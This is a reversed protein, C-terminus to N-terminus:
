EDGHDDHMVSSGYRGRERYQQGWGRTVDENEQALLQDLSVFHLGQGKPNRRTTPSGSSAKKATPAPTPTSSAIDHEQRLHKILKTPPGCFRCRPCFRSQTEPLRYLEKFFAEWSLHGAPPILLGTAPNHNPHVRRM